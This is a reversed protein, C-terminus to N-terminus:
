AKSNMKILLSDKLSFRGVMSQKYVEVMVPAKMTSAAHFLQHENILIEEGTSLDKFAVAFVGNQKPLAHIIEDKLTQLTPKPNCGFLLIFLLSVRTLRSLM